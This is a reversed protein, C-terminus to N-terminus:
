ATRTMESAPNAESESLATTLRPSLGDLPRNSQANAEDAPRPPPRHKRSAGPHAAQPSRSGLLSRGSGQNEPQRRGSWTPTRTSLSRRTSRRIAAPLVDLRM